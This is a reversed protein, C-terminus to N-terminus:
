VINLFNEILQLTVSEGLYVWENRVAEWLHCKLEPQVVDLVHDVEETRLGDIKAETFVFDLKLCLRTFM